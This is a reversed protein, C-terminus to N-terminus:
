NKIVKKNYKSWNLSTKYCWKFFETQNKFEYVPRNKISDSIFSYLSNHSNGSIWSYRQSNYMPFMHVPVGSGCSFNDIYAQQIKSIQGSEEHYVAYINKNNIGILDSETKIIRM